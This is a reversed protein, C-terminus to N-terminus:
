GKILASLAKRQVAKQSSWKASKGWMDWSLTPSWTCPGPGVAGSCLPVASKAWEKVVSRSLFCPIPTHGSVRELQSCPSVTDVCCVRSSGCLSVETQYGGKVGGLGQNFHDTQKGFAAPPLLHLEEANAQATQKCSWPSAGPLTPPLLSTIPLLHHSGHSLRM